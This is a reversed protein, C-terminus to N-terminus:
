YKSIIHLETEIKVIPRNAYDYDYVNGAFEGSAVEVIEDEVRMYLTNDDQYMFCEGCEVNEPKLYGTAKLEKNIKM